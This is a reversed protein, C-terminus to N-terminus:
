GPPPTPTRSSGTISTRPRWWREIEGLVEALGAETREYHLQVVDVAEVVEALRGLTAKREEGDGVHFSHGVLSFLAEAPRLRRAAVSPDGPPPDLVFIMDVPRMRRGSWPKDGAIAYRRKTSNVAVDGVDTAGLIRALEISHPHLRAGPYAPAVRPGETPSGGPTPLTIAACDDALHDFGRATLASGLTSKGWGSRGAIAIAREGGDHGASGEGVVSAHLVVLGFRSLAVPVVHDLILHTLTSHDVDDVWWGVQRGNISITFWACETFALVFRPGVRGIRWGTQPEDSLWHIGTQSPASALEAIEIDCSNCDDAPPLELDVDSSLARGYALQLM